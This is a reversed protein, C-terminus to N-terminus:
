LKALSRVAFIIKGLQQVKMAWVLLTNSLEKKQRERVPPEISGFLKVDMRATVHAIRYCIVAAETIERSGSGDVPVRELLVDYGLMGSM